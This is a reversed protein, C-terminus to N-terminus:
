LDQNRARPRVAPHVMRLIRKVQRTPRLVQLKQGRLGLQRELSLLWALGRLDLQLVEALDLHITEPGGRSRVLIDDCVAYSAQNLNGRIQFVLRTRGVKQIVQLSKM